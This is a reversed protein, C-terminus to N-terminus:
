DVVPARRQPPRAWASSLGGARHAAQVIRESKNDLAPTAEDLPLDTLKKIIARAFWPWVGQGAQAASLLLHLARVAAAPPPSARPLGVFFHSDHSGTASLAYKMSRQTATSKRSMM